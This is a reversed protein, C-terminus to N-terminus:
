GRPSLGTPPPRLAPSKSHMPHMRKAMCVCACAPAMLLARPTWGPRACRATTPVCKTPLCLATPAAPPAGATADLQQPACAAQQASLRQLNQFIRAGSLQGTDLRSAVVGTTGRHAVTLTVTFLRAHPDAAEIRYHCAPHGPQSPQLTQPLYPLHAHTRRRALRTSLLSDSESFTPQLRAAATKENVKNKGWLRAM